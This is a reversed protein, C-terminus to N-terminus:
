EAEAALLVHWGPLVPKNFLDLSDQRARSVEDSSWFREFDARNEWYTTQVFHLHDDEARTLSYSTAGFSPARRLAPMWIAYWRDARFPNIHWDIVNVESM